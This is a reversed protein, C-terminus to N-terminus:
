MVDGVTWKYDILMFWNVTLIFYIIDIMIIRLGWCSLLLEALSCSDGLFGHSDVIVAM